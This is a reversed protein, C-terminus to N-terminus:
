AVIEVRTGVPAWCFVKKAFWDYMRVCGNSVPHGIQGNPNAVINKSKRPWGHMLHREHFQMISTLFCHYSADWVPGAVKRLIYFVGLHNHRGKRASSILSQMVLQNNEYCYIRQMSIIILIEKGQHLNFHSEGVRVSDKTAECDLDLLTAIERAPLFSAGAFQQIPASLEKEDENVIVKKSGVELQITNLDASLEIKNGDVQVTYGLEKAFQRTPILATNKYVFPEVRRIIDQGYVPM